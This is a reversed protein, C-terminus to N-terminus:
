KPDNKTSNQITGISAKAKVVGPLMFTIVLMTIVTSAIKPM